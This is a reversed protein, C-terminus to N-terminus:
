FAKLVGGKCNVNPARCAYSHAQMILAVAQGGICVEMTHPCGAYNERESLVMFPTMEQVHGVPGSGPSCGMGLGGVCVMVEASEVPISKM